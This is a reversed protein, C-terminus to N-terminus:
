FVGNRTGVTVLKGAYPALRRYEKIGSQVTGCCYGLNNDNYNPRFWPVAGRAEKDLPFFSNASARRGRNM